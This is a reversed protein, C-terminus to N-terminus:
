FRCLTRLRNEVYPQLRSQVYEPMQIIKVPDPVDEYESAFDQVARFYNRLYDTGLNFKRIGMSFAKLLQDDPIGSGGHLVLPTDTAERIQSLRDFDLHPTQKYEGHANGISVALADM